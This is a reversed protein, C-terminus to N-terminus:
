FGEFDPLADFEAETMDTRSVILVAYGEDFPFEVTLDNLDDTYMSHGDGDALDVRWYTKKESM